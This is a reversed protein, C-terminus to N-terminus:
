CRRVNLGVPLSENLGKQVEYKLRKVRRETAIQNERAENLRSNVRYMETLFSKLRSKTAILDSEASKPYNCKDDSLVSSQESDICAIVESTISSKSLKLVESVIEPVDQSTQVPQIVPVPASLSAQASALNSPKSSHQRQLERALLKRLRNQQDKLITKREELSDLQARRRVRVSIVDDGQFLLEKSAEDPVDPGMRPGWMGCMQLAGMSLAGSFYRNIIRRDCIAIEYLGKRSRLLSALQSEYTYEAILSLWVSGIDVDERVESVSSKNAGDEIPRIVVRVKLPLRLSIPIMSGNPFFLSDGRM